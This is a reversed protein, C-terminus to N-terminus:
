NLFSVYANYTHYFYNLYATHVNIKKILHIHMKAKQILSRFDENGFNPLILSAYSLVFCWFIKDIHFSAYLLLYMGVAAAM